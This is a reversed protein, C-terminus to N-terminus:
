GHVKRLRSLHEKVHDAIGAQVREEKEAEAKPKPGTKKPKWGAEGIWRAAATSGNEAQKRLQEIGESRIRAEMEERWSDVWPKIRPNESIQKWARFEGFVEMAFTYETPDDYQRYIQYLSPQTKNGESNLCFVAAETDNSTERFLGVSLLKGSEGRIPFDWKRKIM